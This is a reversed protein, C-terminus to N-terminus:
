ASDPLSLLTGEAFEVAKHPRYETELIAVVLELFAPDSKASEPLKDFVGLRFM